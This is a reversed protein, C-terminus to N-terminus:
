NTALLGDIQSLAATMGEVMGMQELQELQELSAFHSTITMRTGDDTAEFRVDAWTTPMETSPVGDDDAFGDEFRLSHPEDVELFAWWGHAKEGEPGTMHYKAGGGAALAHETFTAPWTPPGWWQELQRPDAWLEWARSPPAPLESVFTLTLANPDKSTSVVPM